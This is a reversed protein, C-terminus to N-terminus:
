RSPTSTAADMSVRVSPMPRKKERLTLSITATRSLREPPVSSDRWPSSSHQGWGAGQGSHLEGTTPPYAGERVPRIACWVAGPHDEGRSAPSYSYGARAGPRFTERM